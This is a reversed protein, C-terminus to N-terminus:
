ALAEVTTASAAGTRVLEESAALAGLELTYHADFHGGRPEPRPSCWLVAGGRRRLQQVAECLLAAGDDDLSTLPEDLLAVEPASIFTLAIRLRQRQGMSMREVRRGSLERLAFADLAGEVAPHLRERPLMAIRAAFELHDRVTIRAYLGRDGAPLFSVLRQFRRRSERATIGWAEVRGRDAEILGAAIRLLTTKGAGNRGGVWTSTGPELRLSIRDLLPARHGPWRKCVAILALPSSAPPRAAPSPAVRERPPAALSTREALEHELLPAPSTM